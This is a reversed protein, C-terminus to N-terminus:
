RSHKKLPRPSRRWFRRRRGTPTNGGDCVKRASPSRIPVMLDDEEFGEIPAVNPAPDPLKGDPHGAVAARLSLNQAKLEEGLKLQLGQLVPNLRALQVAMEENLEVSGSASLTAKDENAVARHTLLGKM